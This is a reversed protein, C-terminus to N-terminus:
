KDSLFQEIVEDSSVKEKMSAYSGPFYVLTIEASTEGSQTIVVAARQDKSLRTNDIMPFDFNGIQFKRLQMASSEQPTRIGMEVRIERTEAVVNLVSLSFEREIEGLKLTEPTLELLGETKLKEFDISRSFKKGVQELLVLQRTAIDRGIQNLRSTFVRQQQADPATGILRTMHAFLPKLNLSDHFNYTLLELNLMKAELGASEPRQFTDIISLFMDKRLASDAQERSTTLETYVRQKTTQEENSRLVSSTYYGLLAVAVATLLGNLPHLVIQLKDWVDKGQKEEKNEEAM